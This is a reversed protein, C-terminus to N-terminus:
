LLQGGGVSEMWGSLIQLSFSTLVHLVPPQWVAMTTPRLVNPDFIEANNKFSNCLNIFGHNFFEGRKVRFVFDVM